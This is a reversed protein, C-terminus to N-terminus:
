SANSGVMFGGGLQLTNFLVSPTHFYPGLLIPAPTTSLHYRHSQVNSYKHIHVVSSSMMAGRDLKARVKGM